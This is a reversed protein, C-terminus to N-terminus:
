RSRHNIRRCLMEAAAIVVALLTFNWVFIHTGPASFAAHGTLVGSQGVASFTAAVTLVVYILLRIRPRVVPSISEASRTGLKRQLWRTGVTLILFVPFNFAASVTWGVWRAQPYIAGRTMIFGLILFSSLFLVFM